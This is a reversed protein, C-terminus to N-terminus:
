PREARHHHDVEVVELDGVVGVAVGGAVLHELRDGLHEDCMGPLSVQGGAEAAILERDHELLGAFVFCAGDGPRDM